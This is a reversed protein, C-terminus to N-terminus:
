AAEPGTKEKHALPMGTQWDVPGGPHDGPQPKVKELEAERREAYAHAGPSALHRVSGAVSAWDAEAEAEVDLRGLIRGTALGDAYGARYMREEAVRQDDITRVLAGAADELESM